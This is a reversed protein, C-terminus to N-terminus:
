KNKGSGKCKECKYYKSFIGAEAIKGSGRCEDCLNKRRREKEEHRVFEDFSMEFVNLQKHNKM